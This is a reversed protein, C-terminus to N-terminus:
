KGIVPRNQRNLEIRRQGMRRMNESATVAELHEPNCCARNFCLHDIELGEPIPGVFAEYAVRHTSASVSGLRIRGYGKPHKYGRWVWCGTAPDIDRGLVIRMWLPRKINAPPSLKGTKRLRQYHTRCMGRAVATTECGAVSCPKASRDMLAFEDLRKAELMRSYCRRCLGRASINPSPCLACIGESM